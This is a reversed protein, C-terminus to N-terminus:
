EDVSQGQVKWGDPTRILDLSTETGEGDMFLTVIWEDDSVTERDLIRFGAANSMEVPGVEAFSGDALQSQMEDQLDPALSALYADENGQSIAWTVSEIAAEPTDYGAFAWSDRPFIDQVPVDPPTNSAMNSRAVSLEARLRRLETKMTQLDNTRHRLQEVEKRLKALEALQEDALPTEAHVVFNSLRANDVELVALRSLLERSADNQERLRRNAELQIGWLVAIIALAVFLAGGLFFIRRGAM